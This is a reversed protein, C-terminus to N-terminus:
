PSITIAIRASYPKHGEWSGDSNSLFRGDAIVAGKSQMHMSEEGDDFSAIDAHPCDYPISSLVAKLAKISNHFTEAAAELYYVSASGKEGYNYVFGTNTINFDAQPVDPDERVEAVAQFLVNLAGKLEEDLFSVVEASNDPDVAYTKWGIRKGHAVNENSIM